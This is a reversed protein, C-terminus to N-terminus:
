TVYHSLFTNCADFFLEFGDAFFHLIEDLCAEGDIISSITARTRGLFIIHGQPCVVIFFNLASDCAREIRALASEGLSRSSNRETFTARLPVVYSQLSRRASSSKLFHGDISANVRLWCM